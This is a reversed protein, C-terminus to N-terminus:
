GKKKASCSNQIQALLHRVRAEDGGQEAQRLASRLDQRDQKTQRECLADLWDRLHLRAESLDGGELLFRSYLTQLEADGLLDFVAATEM